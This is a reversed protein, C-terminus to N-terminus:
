FESLAPPTNSEKYGCPCVAIDQIDVVHSLRLSGVIELYKKVKRYQKEM